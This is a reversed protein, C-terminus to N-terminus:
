AGTSANRDRNQQDRWQLLERLPGLDTDPGDLSLLPNTFGIALLAEAQSLDGDPVSTLREIAAPDRGIEACWNDLVQQKHALQDVPDLAHWIDAHITWGAQVHM